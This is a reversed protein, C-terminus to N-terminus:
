SKVEVDHGCIFDCEGYDELEYADANDLEDEVDDETYDADEGEYGRDKMFEKIQKDNFTFTRIVKAKM